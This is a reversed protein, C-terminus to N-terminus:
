HYQKMLDLAHARAEDANDYFFYEVTCREDQAVRQFSYIEKGQEDSERGFLCSANFMCADFDYVLLKGVYTDSENGLVELYFRQAGMIEFEEQLVEVFHAHFETETITKM